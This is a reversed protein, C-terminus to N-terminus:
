IQTQTNQKTLSLFAFACVYCLLSTSFSVLLFCCTMFLTFSQFNRVVPRTRTFLRSPAGTPSMENGKSASVLVRRTECTRSREGDDQQRNWRNHENPNSIAYVLRFCFSNCHFVCSCHVSTPKSVSLLTLSFLSLSSFCVSPSFKDICSVCSWGKLSNPDEFNANVQFMSWVSLSRNDCRANRTDTVVLSCAPM